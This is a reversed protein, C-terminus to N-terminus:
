PRRNEHKQCRPIFRFVGLVVPVATLSSLSILSLGAARCSETSSECDARGRLDCCHTVEEGVNAVDVLPQHFLLVTLFACLRPPNHPTSAPTILGEEQTQLLASTRPPSAAGCPFTGRWARSSCLGATVLSMTWDCCFSRFGRGQGGGGGFFTTIEPVM